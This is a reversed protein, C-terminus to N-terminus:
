KYNLFKNDLVPYLIKSDIKYIDKIEGQLYKSNVIILDYDVNHIGDIFQKNNFATVTCRIIFM